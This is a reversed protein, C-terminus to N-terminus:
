LSQFIMLFALGWILLASLRNLYTVYKQIAQLQGFWRGIWALLCFYLWSVVITGCTFSWKDAAEYLLSNTGIIGLTDLLAHPNLLSVTLAFSMQKKATFPAVKGNSASTSNWIVWGMYLLFVFGGIILFPVFREVLHAAVAMVLVSVIILITDCISATMVAPLARRLKNQTMGQTFIFLNQVGMPLILGFALLFGHLFSDM